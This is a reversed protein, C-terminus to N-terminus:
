VVSKRDGDLIPQCGDEAAWGWCGIIIKKLEPFDPDSLIETVMTKGDKGQEEYDEYTYAYKKETIM